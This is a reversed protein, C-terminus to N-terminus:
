SYVYLNKIARSCAVYLCKTREAVNRNLLIDGAEVFVVDFGSGQSRHATLAYGYAINHFSEKFKWFYGWQKKNKYADLMAQVDAISDKHIVNATVLKRDDDLRIKVRWVKINEHKELRSMYANEVTGEQDTAARMIDAVIIPERIVIRDGVAWTDKGSTTPNNARIFDNLFDVTVNRWAIAKAKGAHFDGSQSLEVLRNMFQDEEAIIVQEGPSKFVPNTNGRISQVFELISNQHRMVETLEYDTDFHTWIPSVEENVPPLQEKDGIFVLKTDAIATKTQIYELLVTNIMSAEDIIVLDFNAVQDTGADSLEKFEGNATMRLGLLSYITRYEVKDNQLSQKLVSTAKNTPAGVSIKISSGYAQQLQEIFFRMCTTKGVGAQGSLLFQKRDSGYFEHLKLLLSTQDQNLKM